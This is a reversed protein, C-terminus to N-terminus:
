TLSRIRSKFLFGLQSAGGLFVFIAETLGWVLICLYFLGPCLHLLPSVLKLSCYIREKLVMDVCHSVHGPRLVGVMGPACSQQRQEALVYVAAFRPQAM